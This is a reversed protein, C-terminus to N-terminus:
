HTIVKREHREHGKHVKISPTCYNLISLYIPFYIARQLDNFIVTFSTIIIYIILIAIEPHRKKQFSEKISRYFQLFLIILFIIGLIGYTGIFGVYGLDTLSYKLNPGRLIEFNEPDAIFGIGILGNKVINKLFYLYGEFRILTGNIESSEFFSYIFKFLFPTVIIVFVWWRKKIFILIRNNKYLVWGCACSLLIALEYIRTQTVWFISLLSVLFCVIWPKKDKKKLINSFSLVCSLSIFDAPRALRLTYGREQILQYNTDFIYIGTTEYVAKYLIIFLAYVTGVVIICKIFYSYYGKYKKFLFTLIFFVSILSYFYYKKLLMLFTENSYAFLSTFFTLVILGIWIICIKYYGTVKTNFFAFKYKFLLALFIIALIICIDKKIYYSIDFPYIDIIWPISFFGIERIVIFVTIIKVILYCDINKYLLDKDKM